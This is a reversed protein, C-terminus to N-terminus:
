ISPSSLLARAAAEWGAAEGREMAAAALGAPLQSALEALLRAAREQSTKESAPHTRVLALLEVAREGEDQRALLRAAGLLADLARPAAHTDVAVQLARRYYDGAAPYAELAQSVEGLSHLAYAMGAAHGIEQSIALSELYYTEAEAYAAQALAVEGLNHLALAIGRQDGVERYIALSEACRQRAQAYGGQAFAVQSLNNLTAAAGWRNGLERRLALSELLCREAETYEGLAYWVIGLLNLSGSMGWRDGLERKM